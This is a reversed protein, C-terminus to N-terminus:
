SVSCCWEKTLPSAHPVIHSTSAKFMRCTTSQDSLDQTGQGQGQGGAGWRGLLGEETSDHLSGVILLPFGQAKTALLGPELGSDSVM